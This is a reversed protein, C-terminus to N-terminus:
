YRRGTSYAPLHRYHGKDDGHNPLVRTKGFVLSNTSIYPEARVDRLFPSTVLLMPVDCALEISFSVTM